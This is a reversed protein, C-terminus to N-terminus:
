RDVGLVRWGRHALELAYTGTGCSLDGAWRGPPPIGPVGGLWGEAGLAVILFDGRIAQRETTVRGRLALDPGLVLGRAGRDRLRDLAVRAERPGRASGLLV